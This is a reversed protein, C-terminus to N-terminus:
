GKESLDTLGTSSRCGSGSCVISSVPSIIGTARIFDAEFNQILTARRVSSTQTSPFKLTRLDFSVWKEERVGERTNLPGVDPLDGTTMYQLVKAWAAPGSTDMGKCFYDDLPSSVENEQKVRLHPPLNTERVGSEGTQRGAETGRDGERRSQGEGGQGFAPLDVSREIFPVRGRAASHLPPIM